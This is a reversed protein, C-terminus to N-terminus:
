QPLTLPLLPLMRQYQRQLDDLAEQGQQEANARLLEMGSDVSAIVEDHTAARGRAWWSVSIPDGLKLLFGGGGPIYASVNFPKFSRTIWMCMAGPNHDVHLGAPKMAGEPLPKNPRKAAPNLMFPCARVAFHACDYHCPPETTVRNIACMPGIVFVKKVGLPEGCLWCTNREIATVLGNPRIVRFDPVGEFFAVFWPVPFGRGDVPLKRMREPLEPLDARLTTM